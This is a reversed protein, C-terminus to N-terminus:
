CQWVFVCIYVYMDHWTQVCTSMLKRQKDITATAYYKCCTLLDKYVVQLITFLKFPSTTPLHQCKRFNLPLSMHLLQLALRARQSVLFFFFFYQRCRCSIDCWVAAAVLTCDCESRLRQHSNIDHTFTDYFLSFYFTICTLSRGFDYFM